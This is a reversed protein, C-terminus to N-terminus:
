TTVAREPDVVAAVGADVDDAGAYALKAIDRLRWIRGAGGWNGDTVENILVWVRFSATPDDDAGEAALVERTVGEVLALKKEDTLVGAPVTINV